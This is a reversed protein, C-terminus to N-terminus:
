RVATHPMGDWGVIEKPYSRISDSFQRARSRRQEWCLPTSISLLLLFQLLVTDTAFGEMALLAEIFMMPRLACIFEVVYVVYKNFFFFFFFSRYTALFFM